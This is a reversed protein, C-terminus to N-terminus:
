CVFVGSVGLVVGVVGEVHAVCGRPAYGIGYLASLNLRFTSSHLGGGHIEVRGGRVEQAPEAAALPKCEHM